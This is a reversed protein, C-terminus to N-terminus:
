PTVAPCGVSGAGISEILLESPPYQGVEGSLYGHRVGDPTTLTWTGGQAASTTLTTAYALRYLDEAMTLTYGVRLGLETQAEHGVGGFSFGGGSPYRTTSGLARYGVFRTHSFFATVEGWRETADIGCNGPSGLTETSTPRGVLKDFMATVTAQADGFRATNIGNALLTFVPEDTSEWLVQSVGGDPSVSAIASRDAFGNGYFTDVYITGDPAVAIGDPSFGRIGHFTGPYFSVITQAGSPALRVLSLENMALVSGDPATVLGGSDRPYIVQDAAPETLTGSPTVMLVAKTDFGFMWLDGTGDFALGNVGDASGQTAPGGIGFIGGYPSEAGAVVTLTGNPELRLVQESTAIYLLRGPSLTVATPNIDAGIAVTGSSIFGRTRSPGGGGAVTSITGTPSIARVRSNGQDVLYLTGDPAAAMPGPQDLEAATAPGGDGSFGVTGTGAVVLFSSDPRRELVQNRFQDAIYLDGNPGVALATPRLPVNAVSEGGSTGSAPTTTTRGASPKPSGACNTLLVASVLIVVAARGPVSRM